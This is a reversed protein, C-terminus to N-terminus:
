LFENLLEEGEHMAENKVRWEWRAYDLIPTMCSIAMCMVEALVESFHLSQCGVFVEALEFGSGSDYLM